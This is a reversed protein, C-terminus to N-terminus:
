FGFRLKLASRNRASLLEPPKGNATQLLGVNDGLEARSTFAATISCRVAEREHWLLRGPVRQKGVTHELFSLRRNGAPRVILICTVYHQSQQRTRSTITHRSAVGLTWCQGDARAIFPPM